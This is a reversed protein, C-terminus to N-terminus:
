SKWINKQPILTHIHQSGRRSGGKQRIRTTRRRAFVPDLNATRDNEGDRLV